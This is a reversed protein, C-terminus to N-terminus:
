DSIKVLYGASSIVALSVHQQKVMKVVTDHSLKHIGIKDCVEKDLNTVLCIKIRCTKEMMALATGGNGHYNEALHDFATKWDKLDFWPLFTDSGIGDRCEALVVLTGGDRVFMAANHIAKHSQIFNIDKPFGGCSALVLDYCAPDSVESHAAHIKCATQFFVERSGVLLQCLKGHHDLIGHIALDVPRIREIETLDEALPNCSLRGPRCDPALRCKKHDLFLGHNHYIAMQEGLGPFILKRGGGYGAFYHHSIAGFTILFDVDCIDKRIRIPTGQKTTGLERFLTRDRCDHHIFHFQSWVKGYTERSEKESQPLHTGYAIYIKIHSKDVKRRMIEDLLVPLYCDYGCLRTKDAVVIALNCKKPIDDLFPALDSAFKEPSVQVKLEPLDLKRAFAPLEFKLETKGYPLFIHSM